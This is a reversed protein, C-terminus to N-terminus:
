KSFCIGWLHSDTEMLLQQRLLEIHYRWKAQPGQKATEKM